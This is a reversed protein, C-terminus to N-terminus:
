VIEDKHERLWDDLSRLRPNLSRAHEVDRATLFSDSADAYFQFMNGIEVAGPFGAARLQGPTIPQYSVKEGLVDGFLEALQTGTAHTGALGVARGIYREGAGFIGYATRGIDEAAVLGIPKDGMPLALVLEGNPARRPGQGNARQFAEYFMTTQLFTTPVGAATFLADAEGKADFHPVKYHELLTPLETGLHAFHPRTDELTSWVVHRLGTARAARAAIAAQDLELQARTRAAEQAPTLPAWFNTVVFAGYAGDFAARVSPEDDLDATVVEAGREALARAAPADVNRTIARLAFPGAPDDLIARALGGGQAGTAGIVAIIKKESM